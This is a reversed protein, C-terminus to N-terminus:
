KLVLTETINGNILQQDFVCVDIDDHKGTCEKSQVPIKAVDVDSVRDGNFLSEIQLVDSCFYTGESFKGMPGIPFHGLIYQSSPVKIM